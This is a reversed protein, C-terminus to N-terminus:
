ERYKEIIQLILNKMLIIDCADESSIGSAFSIIREKEFVSLINNITQEGARAARKSEFQGWRVPPIYMKEQTVDKTLQALVVTGSGIRSEVLGDAKLEMYAKVVTSRNVGLKMSLTREAPLIFNSPLKGVVIQHEIQKKIQLYIPTKSERNITIDM